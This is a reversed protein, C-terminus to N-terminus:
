HSTCKLFWVKYLSDIATDISEFPIKTHYLLIIPKDSKVPGNTYKDLPTAKVKVQEARECLEYSSFPTDIELLVHAGYSNSMLNVKGKMKSQILSTIKQLKQSYLKRLKKIQKQYHGEKMYLYLALQETKSCTQTYNAMTDMYKSLINKPLIMYSIKISPILTSSFSGIYVVRNDEDLGKLSPIPRGLYRLESNYDDEIIYYNNSSAWKLLEYRRSIPIITGTPFQNSPNVYAINAYSNKLAMIDMGNSDIPLSSILFNNDLFIKQVPMYGPNEFAIHNINLRNLIITLLGMIQQTGAGIVIDEPTCYVGRFQYVYKSIEQRLLLEGQPSPEILLDDRYDNLVRNLCKKWQIFDFSTSDTYEKKAAIHADEKSDVPLAVKLSSYNDVNDILIKNVFFGSQPKSYIYGEMFLQEYAATITTKSLNLNDSLERISPLKESHSIHGSLIESKIHDYIQMYLPISSNRNLNLIISDM